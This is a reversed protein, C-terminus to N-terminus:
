GKLAHEIERGLASLAPKEMPVCVEVHNLSVCLMASGGRKEPPELSADGENALVRGTGRMAGGMLLALLEQVSAPELRWLRETDEDKFVLHLANGAAPEVRVLTLAPPIAQSKPTDQSSGQARAGAAKAGRRTSKKRAM